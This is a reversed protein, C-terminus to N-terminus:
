WRRGGSRTSHLHHNGLAAGLEGVNAKLITPKQDIAAFGSKIADAIMRGLDGTAAAKGFAMPNVRGRDNGIDGWSSKDFDGNALSEHARMVDHAWNGNPKYSTQSGLYERAGAQANEWSGYKRAYLGQEGEGLTGEAIKKAKAVSKEQDGESFENIFQNTAQEKNPGNVFFSIANAANIAFDAAKEFGGVLKDIREPSAAESIRQKVRNWTSEIRGASSEHYINFDKAVQNSDKSADDIEHVLKLQDTLYDVAARGRQEPFIKRMLEPDKALPSKAIADLLELPDKMSKNGKSDVSFPEIHMKRLKPANQNIAIFMENLRHMTEATDHTQNQLVQAMASVHGLGEASTGKGFQSYMALVPAFHTALDKMEVGGLHAQKVLIDMAGRWQSPDMHLNKDLSAFIGAVDGVEAGTAQATEAFLEMSQTAYKANGTFAVYASAGELLKNKSLGTATSASDVASRFEAVEKSSMEGSIQLRTLSKEFDLVGSAVDSLMGTIGGMASGGLSRLAGKGIDAFGKFSLSSTLLKSTDRAFSRLTRRADSLGSTMSAPDVKLVVKATRSGSAM